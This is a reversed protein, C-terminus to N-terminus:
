LKVIGQREQMELKLVETLIRYSKTVKTLRVSRMEFCIKRTKGRPNKESFALKQYEKGFCKNQLIDIYVETKQLIETSLTCLKTYLDMEIGKKVKKRHIVRGKEARTFFCFNRGMQCIKNIRDPSMFPTSRDVETQYM